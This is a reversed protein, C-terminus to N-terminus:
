QPTTRGQVFCDWVRSSGWTQKELASLMFYGSRPHLDLSLLTASLRLNLRLHRRANPPKAASGSTTPGHLRLAWPSPGASPWSGDLRPPLARGQSAPGGPNPTPTPVPCTGAPQEEKASSCRESCRPAWHSSACFHERAPPPYSQHCALNAPGSSPLQPPHPPLLRSHRGM